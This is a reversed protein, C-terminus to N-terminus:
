IGDAYADVIYTNKVYAYDIESQTVEPVSQRELEAVAQQADHLNLKEPLLAVYAIRRAFKADDPMIATVAKEHVRVLTQRDNIIVHESIEKEHDATRTGGLREITLDIAYNKQAVMDLRSDPDTIRALETNVAGAGYRLLAREAPNAIGANARELFPHLAAVIDYRSQEHSLNNIRVRDLFRTLIWRTAHTKAEEPFGQEDMRSELRGCHGHIRPMYEATQRRSPSLAVNWGELDSTPITAAIELFKRSVSPGALKGSLDLDFPNVQLLNEQVARQIDRERNNM